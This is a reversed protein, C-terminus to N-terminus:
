RFLSSFHFISSSATASKMLSSSFRNRYSIAFNVTTGVGTPFRSSIVKRAIRTNFSASRIRASSVRVVPIRSFCKSICFLICDCWLNLSCLVTSCIAERMLPPSFMASTESAPVGAMESGPKISTLSHTRCPTSTSHRGPAVANTGARTLEPSGLSFNQKSPKRGWFFPRCVRRLSNDVSFLVIM